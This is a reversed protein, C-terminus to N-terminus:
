QPCSPTWRSCRRWRSLSFATRSPIRRHRPRKWPWEQAKAAEVALRTKGIGGPGTLTLLRCDPDALCKGITEMEAERGVFPILWVPLKSVRPGLYVADLAEIVAEASPYRDEADKALLRMVVQEFAPPVTPAFWTLPTPTATLHASLMEIENTGEFPLHGGAVMQYLVVGLSYLDARGDTPRGEIQEPSIYAPTGALYDTGRQLISKLGALGFDTLKVDGGIMVNSPKVDRHVVGREHAYHLAELIGRTVELVLDLPLDAGELIEALDNGEVYEMVLYFRDERENWDVDYIQTINPHNLRALMRGEALFGERAAPDPPGKPCKIAVQRELVTDTALWVDGFSGVSSIPRELRYREAESNAM